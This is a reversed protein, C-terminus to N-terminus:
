IGDYMGGRLSIRNESMRNAQDLSHTTFVILPKFRAHIDKINKEISMVSHDDINAAPEDMLIIQPEMVLVQAIAAKKREGGSLFKVHRKALHEIKLVSLIKSVKSVVETKPYKRLKLGLAVNGFVDMDFLYPDQALFGIKRRLVKKTKRVCHVSAGEFVIKGKDPVDLLAILKLLTSKGSGNRGVVVNIGSNKLELEGIKLSFGSTRYNKCINKLKISTIM